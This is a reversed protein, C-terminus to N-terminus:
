LPMVRRDQGLPALHRHCPPRMLDLTEMAVIEDHRRLRVHKVQLRRPALLALRLREAKTQDILLRM